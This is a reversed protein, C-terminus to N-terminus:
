PLAVGDDVIPSPTIVGGMACALTSASDLAAHGSATVTVTVTVTVPAVGPQWPSPTQPTCIRPPAGAICVGFPTVHVIPQHDAVCALPRGVVHPRRTDPVLLRGPARGSSCRLAAGHRLPLTM